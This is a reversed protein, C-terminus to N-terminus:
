NSGTCGDGMGVPNTGLNEVPRGVTKRSIKLIIWALATPGDRDGCALLSHAKLGKGEGFLTM